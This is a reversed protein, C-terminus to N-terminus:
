RRVNKNKSIKISVIDFPKIMRINNINGINLSENKGKRLRETLYNMEKSLERIIRILMCKKSSKDRFEEGPMQQCWKVIQIVSYQGNINGKVRKNFM